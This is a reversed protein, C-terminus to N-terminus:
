SGLRGALKWLMETVKEVTLESADNSNPDLTVLSAASKGGEKGRAAAPGAALLSLGLAGASPAPPPLPPHIFPELSWSACHKCGGQGQASDAWTGQLTHLVPSHAYIPHQLIPRSRLGQKARMNIHM